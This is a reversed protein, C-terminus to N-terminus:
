GIGVAWAFAIKEVSFPSMRFVNEFQLGQIEDPQHSQPQVLASPVLFKCSLDPKPSTLSVCSLESPLYVWIPEHTPAYKSSPKMILLNM